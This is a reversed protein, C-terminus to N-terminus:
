KEKEQNYGYKSVHYIYKLILNVRINRRKEDTHFLNLALEERMDRHTEIKRVRDRRRETKTETDIDMRQRDRKLYWSSPGKTGCM